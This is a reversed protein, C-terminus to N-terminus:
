KRSCKSMWQANCSTRLDTQRSLSSTNHKACKKQVNIDPKSIYKMADLLM